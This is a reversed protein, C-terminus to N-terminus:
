LSSDQWSSSSSSDSDTDLSAMIEFAEQVKKQDDAKESNIQAVVLLMALCIGLGGGLAWRWMRAVRGLSVVGPKAGLGERRCRALTRAAFWAEPEPLPARGLLRWVPDNEDLRADMPPDNPPGAKM